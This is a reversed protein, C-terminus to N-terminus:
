QKKVWEYIPDIGKKLDSFSTELIVDPALTNLEEDTNKFYKTSYQVVLQSSPLRISRVEGFHNPKGSTEEGIFVAKTLRRFDMANLIASSFTQRGLVVYLKIQPHKNLYDALTEIYSTGQRSDGGGNMRLDFILKRVPNEALTRLTKTEFSKFSPMAEAKQQDGREAELEKSWCRNYLIHYIQEDPSYADTFFTRENKLYFAMSDPKVSVRNNRDLTAPKITHRVPTGDTKELSLEVQPSDTFGFYELLQLSRILGPVMTKVVSQNDVTFLTSLSDIIQQIPTQNISSLKCGLIAQNEPLTHLVHLGDSTWLLHFPLFQDNDLLPYFNLMTHSDGMQALLQQIKLAKQLDTQKEPHNSIAHIGSLFYENSKKAFLNCHKAPLEKALYDLDSKWDIPQERQASLSLSFGWVISLALIIQKM